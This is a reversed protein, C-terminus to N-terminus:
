FAVGNKRLQRISKGTLREITTRANRKDIKHCNFAGNRWFEGSRINIAADVGIQKFRTATCGSRFGKTFMPGDYVKIYREDKTAIACFCQETYYPPLGAQIVADMADKAMVLTSMVWYLKM